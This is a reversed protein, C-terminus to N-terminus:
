VSQIDYKKFLTKSVFQLLGESTEDIVLTIDLLGNRKKSLMWMDLLLVFTQIICVDTSKDVL